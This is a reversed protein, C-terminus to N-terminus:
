KLHRNKQGSEFNPSEFCIGETKLFELELLRKAMSYTSGWRTKNRMLAGKGAVRKLVADLLPARLKQSIHALKEVFAAPREAKLADEIGLQLTHAACRMHHISSDIHPFSTEDDQEEENARNSSWM